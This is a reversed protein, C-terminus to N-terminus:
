NASQTKLEDWVAYYVIETVLVFSQTALAPVEVGLVFNSQETPDAAPTGQLNDNALPDGGFTSRASWDKTIIVPAGTNPVMVRTVSGAMESAAITAAPNADDDVYSTIVCPNAMTNNATVTFKCRSKVVTYHDYIAGLNDFYMPQHGTGTLDPDFMGNCRFLRQALAGTTCTFTDISVYKHAIYLRRPFGWRPIDARYSSYNVLSKQSPTSRKYTSRSKITRKGYTGKSSQSALSQTSSFRKRKM